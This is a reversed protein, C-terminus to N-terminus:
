YEFINGYISVLYLFVRRFTAFVTPIVASFVLIWQNKLFFSKRKEIKPTDYQFSLRFIISTYNDSHQISVDSLARLLLQLM